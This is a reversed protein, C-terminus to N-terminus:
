DLLFCYAPAARLPQDLVIKLRQGSWACPYDRGSALHAVKKAPPADEIIIENSQPTDLLHAYVQVGKATFRVRGGDATKGEARTWPRTGYIGDANTRLWAGFGKLRSVQEQPIQADEGRPGVNLLLNGNKAVSDIFSHVLAQVSEYDADTDARNFGFSHSM